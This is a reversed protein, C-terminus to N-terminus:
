RPLQKSPYPDLIRNSFRIDITPTGYERLLSMHNLTKIRFPSNDQICRSSSRRPISKSNKVINVSNPNWDMDTKRHRDDEKGFQTFNVQKPQKVSINLKNIKNESMGTSTIFKMM